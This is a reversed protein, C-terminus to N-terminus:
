VGEPSIMVRNYKWKRVKSLKNKIIENNKKFISFSFTRSYFLSVFSIESERAISPWVLLDFEKTGELRTASFDHRKVAEYLLYEYLKFNIAAFLSVIFLLSSISNVGDVM